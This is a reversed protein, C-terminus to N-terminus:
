HELIRDALRELPQEARGQLRAVEQAQRDVDRHSEGLKM